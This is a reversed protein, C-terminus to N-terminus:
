SQCAKKLWNEFKTRTNLYGWGTWSPGDYIGKIRFIQNEGVDLYVEKKSFSISKRPHQWIFTQYDGKNRIFLRGKSNNLIFYKDNNEIYVKAGMRLLCQAENECVYHRSQKPRANSLDFLWLMRGYFDERKEIEDPGISSHQLEVVMGSRTMIDARHKVGDREIVVECCDPPVLSKWYRHWDTEPGSWSDCDGFDHAWHHVVIRGCKATLKAGCSPCYGKKGKEARIRKGYKDHAFIM